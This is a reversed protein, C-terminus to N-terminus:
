QAASWKQTAPGTRNPPRNRGKLTRAASAVVDLPTLDDKVVQNFRHGVGDYRMSMRAKVGGTVDRLFEYDLIQEEVFAM